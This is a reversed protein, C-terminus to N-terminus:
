VSETFTWINKNGMKRFFLNYLNRGSIESEELTVVYAYCHKEDCIRIKLHGDEIYFEISSFRAYSKIQIEGNEVVFEVSSFREPAPPYYRSTQCIRIKETMGIQRMMEEFLRGHSRSTDQTRSSRGVVLVNMSTTPKLSMDVEERPLIRLEPAPAASVPQLLQLKVPMIM